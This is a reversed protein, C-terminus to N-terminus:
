PRAADPFGVYQVEEELTIGFKARVREKLEAILARLDAATGRGANYLLNAHYSAVHIDGRTMGKANVEELFYAAPVKGERIVREPLVLAAEGSSLAELFPRLGTGRFWEIV